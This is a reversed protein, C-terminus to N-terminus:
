THSQRIIKNGAHDSDFFIHMSVTKGREKPMKPPLLEQADAYFNDWVAMANFADKNVDPEDNLRTHVAADFEEFRTKKQPDLLDELTVHQVTLRAIFKGSETLIWYTLVSGFNQLVGLWYGSQSKEDTMDM